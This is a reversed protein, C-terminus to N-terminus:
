LMEFKDRINDVVLNEPNIKDSPFIPDEDLKMKYGVCGFPTHVLTMILRPYEKDVYTSMVLIGTQVNVKMAEVIIEKPEISKVIKNIVEVEPLCYKGRNPLLVLPHGPSLDM